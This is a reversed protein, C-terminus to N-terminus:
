CLPAGTPSGFYWVSVTHLVGFALTNFFMWRSLLRLLYVLAPPDDYNIQLFGFKIDRWLEHSLNCNLYKPGGKGKESVITFPTMWRSLGVNLIVVLFSFPLAIWHIGRTALLLVPMTWLHHTCTIRIAWSTGPWAIYAAVGIPFKRFGSLPYGVVDVYWLLQDIGVAVCLAQAILNRGTWLSLSGVFLSINCLWTAEYICASKFTEITALRWVQQILYYLFVWRATQRRYEKDVCEETTTTAFPSRLIWDHVTFLVGIVVTYHVVFTSVPHAWGKHKPAHSGENALWGLM